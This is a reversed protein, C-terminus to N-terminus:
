YPLTCNLRTCYLVACYQLCEAGGRRMESGRKRRVSVVGSSATDPNPALLPILILLVVV